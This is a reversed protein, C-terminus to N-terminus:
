SSLPLLSFVTRKKQYVIKLGLQLAGLVSGIFNPILISNDGMSLGYLAWTLSCCAAALAIPLPISSADKKDIVEKLSALPSGFMIISSCAALFGLHSLVDSHDSVLFM